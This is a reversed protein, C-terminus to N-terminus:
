LGYITCRSGVDWNAAAPAVVQIQSLAAGAINAIGGTARLAVLGTTIGQPDLGLAAWTHKKTASTYDALFVFQTGFFNAPASAAPSDIVFGAASALVESAANTAGAWNTLESYYNATADNNFRISTNVAAAVTVCRLSMVMLLHKSTAPIGGAGTDITGAVGLTTDFLPTLGGTGTGGGKGSSTPSLALLPLLGLLSRADLM